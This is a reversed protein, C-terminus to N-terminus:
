VVSVVEKTTSIYLLLPKSPELAVLVPTSTLYRKLEQFAQEAEPTWIFPGTKRLLKFFPLARQALKSIFHSLAALCGSLKQVDKIRAPPRMMEIAKM